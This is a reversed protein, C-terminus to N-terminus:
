VDRCVDRVNKIKGPRFELINDLNCNESVRIDPNERFVLRSDLTNDDVQENVVDATFKISANGTGHSPIPVLINRFTEVKKNLIKNLTGKVDPCYVYSISPTSTPQVSPFLENLDGVPGDEATNQDQETDHVANLM